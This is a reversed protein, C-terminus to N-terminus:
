HNLSIRLSDKHGLDEVWLWWADNGQFTGSTVSRTTAGRPLGGNIATEAAQQSTYPGLRVALNPLPHDSNMVFREGRTYDYTVLAVEFGGNGGDIVTQLDHLEVRNMPELIRPIIRIRDPRSDDVGASYLIAQMSPGQNAGNSLDGIRHWRGDDMINSGEPYIWQFMRWDIGRLPDHFNMNKDYSYYTLDRIANAAHDMEDFALLSQLLWGQGYGMGIVARGSNPRELRKDLTRRTVERTAPDWDNHDYGELYTSAFAQALAENHSPFISHDSHKWTEEGEDGVAMENILGGYLREAYTAWKEAHEHDGVAKAKEVSVKLALYCMWTPYSQFFIEAEQYYGRIVDMDTEDWWGDPIQSGPTGSPGGGWGTSEGESYIVDRGTHDMLWCIFNASEKSAHYRSKNFRHARPETLWDGTPGGNLRWAWWRGITTAGHGDMEEVGQLENIPWPPSLPGQIVFAWHGPADEPYRTIDLGHNHPGENPDHNSRFFYLWEDVHDVYNTARDPNQLVRMAFTAYHDSCRSFSNGHYVGIPVWTGIGNYGGYWPSNRFSERFFGTEAEFKEDMEFVNAVWSNSLMGPLDVGEATKDGHFIMRAAQLGEPFDIRDVDRPLDDVSTYLINSLDRIGPEFDPMNELSFAPQLDAPVVDDMDVPRINGEVDRANVLTVGSVLPQGRKEDNNRVILRDIKKDRPQVALYFYHHSNNKNIFHHHLNESAPEDTEYLRLSAQLVDLFEPRSLFPEKVEESRLHSPGHAWQAVFWATAGIIMPITDVDGDSYHVDIEGIVTGLPIQDPREDWTEPHEGW